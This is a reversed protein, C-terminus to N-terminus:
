RFMSFFVEDRAVSRRASGFTSIRSVRVNGESTLEIVRPWDGVSSRSQRDESSRKILM